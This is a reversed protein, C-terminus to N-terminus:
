HKPTATPKSKATPVPTPKPKATPVPTPKPKATPVPTPKPKATPVPTPKPTPTTALKPTATPVPKPPATPAPKPTATATPVPKPTATAVPKPAGHDDIASYAEVGIQSLASYAIWGYGATGWGTGWSNIFKVAQKADDYGVVSVAHGGVYAGSISTYVQNPGLAYFNNYVKIALMVPIGAALQAKMSTTDTPAIYGYTSLKYHTADALAAAPPQTTFQGAVYPMDALTAAGKQELLTLAAPITIGADKGHNLQNYVFSPSFNHAPDTTQPAITSWVDERAEYGRMAYAAAWAVCSGEAGQYGVAPMNASLDAATPLATVSLVRRIHPMLAIDAPAAAVFGLAYRTGATQTLGIATNPAAAGFQANGGPSPLVSGGGGGGCATLSGALALIALQAVTSRIQPSRV